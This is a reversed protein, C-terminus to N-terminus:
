RVSWDDIGLLNKTAWDMKQFASVVADRVAPNLVAVAPLGVQAGPLERTKVALRTREVFKALMSSPLVIGDAASFELLPLLDEMKAVRKLKVDTAKLLGTFFTQTGERNLLDVVGITKGSLSAGLPQGVSALVYAETGKGGRMGQLAPKKGRAELVPTISLMADPQAANAAEDFDRFRGFVTISLGPLRGQLSKEVVSSKADVQLFVHVVPKGSQAEARRFTLCPWAVFVLLAALGATLHPFSHDRYARSTM